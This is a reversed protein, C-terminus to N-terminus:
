AAGLLPTPKFSNNPTLRGVEIKPQKLLRLNDLIREIEQTDMGSHDLESRWVSLDALLRNLLFSAAIRKDNYCKWNSEDFGSSNTSALDEFSLHLKRLHSYDRFFTSVQRKISRAWLQHHLYLEGKELLVRSVPLMFPICNGSTWNGIIAAVLEYYESAALWRDRIIEVAQEQTQAGGSGMLEDIEHQFRSFRM